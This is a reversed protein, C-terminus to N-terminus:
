QLHSQITEILLRKGPNVETLGESHAQLIKSARHLHETQFGSSAKCTFLAFRSLPTEIKIQRAHRHGAAGLSLTFHHASGQPFVRNLVCDCSVSGLAM